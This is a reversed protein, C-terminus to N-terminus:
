EGEAFSRLLMRLVTAMFAYVPLLVAAAALGPVVGYISGVVLGFGTCAVLAGSATVAVFRKHALEPRSRWQPRAADWCLRAVFWTAAILVSSFVFM